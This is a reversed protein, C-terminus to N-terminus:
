RRQGRLNFLCLPILCLIVYSVLAVGAEWLVCTLATGAMDMLEKGPLGTCVILMVVSLVLGLIGWTIGAAKQTFRWAEVSGMGFFTRFGAKHNAEKPPLFLFWLGFLLMLIPGVMVAVTVILQVKGLLTSLDPVLKTLDLNDLLSGLDLNDLFSTTNEM